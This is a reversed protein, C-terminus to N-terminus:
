KQSVGPAKGVLLDGAKADFEYDFTDLPPAPQGAEKALQARRQYDADGVKVPQTSSWIPERGPFPDRLRLKGTSRVQISVSTTLGGERTATVRHGGDTRLDEFSVDKWKESVSPFVRVVGGWSQLLMEHVAQMALFNGELTFPGHSEDTPHKATQDENLHFGNRGTFDLYKELYQLALDPKGARSCMCSFWPYSYGVWGGTGATEIGQLTAEVTKREAPSGEISILGLPFIAMAHSFHRHSERYPIGRAVTLAGSETETDLADLNARLNTWTAVDAANGSAAAMEQLAGFLWQMLALDYNSNPALWARPSNDFMEPSSSLPLHLKGKEDAKLLSALARGVGACWPYARTSLFEADMTYRWHQYFSQALWASNTPSLSYQAWGGTAQGDLTMVGPVLLGSVDYFSKAFQEFRPKRQWLFDVFAQGETFLGATPYAIYTMQTNLDNHYDGKWPPLGGADATWLGQLPMPPSGIRSGSGYLYKGLEYQSQIRKDPVKAKSTKWFQDWRGYHLADLYREYQYDGAFVTARRADAVPDASDRSTTISIAFDTGGKEDHRERVAVVYKAGLATSQTFWTEAGDHEVKAPEYGLKTVGEPPLLHLEPTGYDVRIYMVNRTSAVNARVRSPTYGATVLAAQTDLEFRRAKAAAPFVLEVRGVPLKTPYAVTDYPADFLEHEKAENGDAVLKRLTAYTWDKATLPAPLREDWLDGRDLSLRFVNDSGWALAGITGNGLPLGEDWRNIPADVSIPGPERPIDFPRVGTTVRQRAAAPAIACTLAAM